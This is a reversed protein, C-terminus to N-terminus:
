SEGDSKLGVVPRSATGVTRVSSVAGRSRGAEAGAGGSRRGRDRGAGRWQGRGARTLRGSPEGRQRGRAPYGRRRPWTLWRSRLRRGCLRGPVVMGWSRRPEEGSPEDGGAELAPQPGAPRLVRHRRLVLLAGGPHRGIPDTELVPHIAPHESAPCSRLGPSDGGASTAKRIARPVRRQRRSRTMNATVAAVAM